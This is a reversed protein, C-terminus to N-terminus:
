IEVNTQKKKIREVARREDEKKENKNNKIKKKKKKKFQTRQNGRNRHIVCVRIM